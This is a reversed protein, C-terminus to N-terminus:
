RPMYFKSHNKHIQSIFRPPPTFSFFIIIIINAPCAHIGMLYSVLVRHPARRARDVHLSLLCRGKGLYHIGSRCSQRVYRAHLKLALFRSAHTTTSSTFPPSPFLCSPSYVSVEDDMVTIELLFSFQQEDPSRSAAQPVTYPFYTALAEQAGQPPHTPLIPQQPQQSCAQVSPSISNQADPLHKHSPCPQTHPSKDKKPEEVQCPKLSQFSSKKSTAIFALCFTSPNPDSFSPRNQSHRQSVAAFDFPGYSHNHNDCCCVPIPNASASISVNSGRPLAAALHDPLTIILDVSRQDYLTNEPNAPGIRFPFPTTSASSSKSTPIRFSFIKDNLPAHKTARVDSATVTTQPLSKPLTSKPDYSCDPDRSSDPFNPAPPSDGIESTFLPLSSTEKLPVSFDKHTSASEGLQEPLSTHAPCFTSPGNHFSSMKAAVCIAFPRLFHPPFTPNTTISFICHLLLSPEQSSSWKM